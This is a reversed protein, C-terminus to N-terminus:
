GGDATQNGHSDEQVTTIQAERAKLRVTDLFYRLEGERCWYVQLFTGDDFSIKAKQKDVEEIKAYSYSFVGQQGPLSSDMFVLRRTTAALQGHKFFIGTKEQESFVGKIRAYEQEGASLYMLSKSM